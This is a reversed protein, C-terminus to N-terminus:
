QKTGPTLPGFNGGNATFTNDGFTTIVGGSGVFYGGSTNGVIASQTLSVTANNGTVQLGTASSAATVRTLAVNVTSHGAGSLVSFGASGNPGQAAVSDTVAVTIAGTGNTGDVGLGAFTHSYLTVRDITASISGASGAGPAINIGFGGSNSIYSNSVLLTRATAASLALVLGNAAMNQVVCNEVVLTKGTVFFLGETGIGNGEILLGNLNVIDGAGANVTIGISNNAVSMGAFGHGQISISKTITLMGYGAPDLVDIEGGAAVTDHAHQFTRCPLAFSCPNADSGQAAVFVRTQAQAPGAQLGAISILAAAITSRFTPKM